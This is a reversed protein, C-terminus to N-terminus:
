VWVPCPYFEDPGKGTWRDWGLVEGIQARWLHQKVWKSVETSQTKEKFVLMWLDKNRFAIKIVEFRLELCKSGRDYTYQTEPRYWRHFANCSSTEIWCSQAFLDFLIFAEPDHYCWWGGPEGGLCTGGHCPFLQKM